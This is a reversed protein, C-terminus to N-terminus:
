DRILIWYERLKKIQNKNLINELEKQPINKIEDISWAIKLLKQRTKTGISPIEELLNKKYEKIRKERNYNIAFRHAEDRIKVILSLENSWKELIIPESNGPIFIEEEKKAISCLNISNLTLFQSSLKMNNDENCLNTNNQFNINEPNGNERSHCFSTKKVIKYQEQENSNEETSKNRIDLSKHIAKIVSSLQWKWGDIIILDPWNKLKIAEQTRRQLIENLSKFDDIEWSAITELKYKKYKPSVTKWNIIVSRSAVTNTWGLHSIDYCEFIIDWKKKKQFGLKELINNQTQRTLTLKSINTLEEKYAFNLLNNKTFNIVNIKDGIKPNEVKIWKQKFYELLTKDEIKEFTIINLKSPISTNEVYYWNLFQTLVENKNESLINDIKTSYIGGIEGDRIQTVWIYINEYKEMVVIIDNNWKITERALQKEQIQQVSKIQDRIKGAEEFQMNKACEQMKKELGELVTSTNWKLFNRALEVDKVYEDINEKKLLCPGSCNKIYYYMCPISQIWAKSAISIWWKNEIFKVHCPRIHFLKKLLEITNTVNATSPYPWFYEWDQTKIRTKIIEPIPDSTIKIYALNKDDKMLINYKPKHTKILNTELVLAEIENLTEIFEIRRIQEVMKQKAFNLKSKGNFYSNVRAKLNISKWIYIIKDKESKYIYVWPNSPINQLIKSDIKKM